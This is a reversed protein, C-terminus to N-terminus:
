LVEMNQLASLRREGAFLTTKGGQLRVVIPQLLGHTEISQMLSGLAEGEIEKRQRYTPVEIEQLPVRLIQM